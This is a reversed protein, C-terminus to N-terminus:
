VYFKYFFVLKKGFYIEYAYFIFFSAKFTEFNFYLLASDRIVQYKEYYLYAFTGTVIYKIGRMLNAIKIIKNKTLIMKKIM